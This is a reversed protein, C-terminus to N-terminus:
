RLTKRWYCAGEALWTVAPDFLRYGAQILNNASHTNNYTASVIAPCGITRALRERARILRLQLGQGRHSPIVGARALYASGDALFNPELGAFAVPEDGDTVLWWATGGWSPQEDFPFTIAHLDRLRTDLYAVRVLNM